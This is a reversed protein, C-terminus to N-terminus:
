LAPKRLRVDNFEDEYTDVTEEPASGHLHTVHESGWPFPTRASPAAATPAENSNTKGHLSRASGASPSHSPSSHFFYVGSDDPPADSCPSLRAADRRRPKYRYDPHKVSHEEKVVNARRIWQKKEPEPMLRWLLGAEKSLHRNNRTRNAQKRRYDCAFLIFPNAPRRIHKDGRKTRPPGSSASEQEDGFQEDLFALDESPSAPPFSSPSYHPPPPASTLMLDSTTTLAFHNSPLQPTYMDLVTHSYTM